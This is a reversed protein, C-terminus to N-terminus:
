LGEFIEEREKREIQLHLEWEDDPVHQTIAERCRQRLIDPPIAEVEVSDGVFSISRSDSRKTPRTLLGWEEIQEPM